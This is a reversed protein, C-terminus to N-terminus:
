GSHRLEILMEATLKEPHGLYSAPGTESFLAGLKVEGAFATISFIVSLLTILIKVM